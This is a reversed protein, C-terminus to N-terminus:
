HKFTSQTEFYILIKLSKKLASTVCYKLILEFDFADSRELRDSAQNTRLEM